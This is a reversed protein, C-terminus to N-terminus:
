RYNTLTTCVFAEQGDLRVCVVHRQNTQYLRSLPLSLSLSHPLFPPLSIGELLQENLDDFVDQRSPMGTAWESRTAYFNAFADWFYRCIWPWMLPLQVHTRASIGMTLFVSFNTSCHMWHRTPCRLRDASYITKRQARFAHNGAQCLIPRRNVDTIASGFLPKTVFRQELDSWYETSAGMFAFNFWNWMESKMTHHMPLRNPYLNANNM